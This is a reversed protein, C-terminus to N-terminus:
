EASQRRAAFKGWIREPLFWLLGFGGGVIAFGLWTWGNPGLWLLRSGHLVSVIAMILFFPGTLYCHTRGCRVANAICAVGMWVLATSWIVTKAPPAMFIAAVLAVTPLGWALAYSRPRGVWDRRHRGEEVM